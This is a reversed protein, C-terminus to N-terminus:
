RLYNRKNQVHQDHTVAFHATGNKGHLYFYYETKIPNLAASITSLGPNGIPTPTLGKRTYTNYPHDKRLDSISLELSGKDMYYKFPADVQLHMGKDLRKWLIGSIVQQENKNRNAEKEIISAMIIIDEFSRKSKLAQEQLKATKKQFNQEIALLVDQEDATEFFYYTDPFLYGEKPEAIRLFQVKDFQPLAEDLIKAYTAVSDGENLRIRIQDLDYIGKTFRIALSITNQTKELSYDGAVLGGDGGIAIAITQFLFVSRIYGAEKLEEAFASMTTGKKVEIFDEKGFERPPLLLFLITACFITTIIGLVVMHEKKLFGLFREKPKQFKHFTYM